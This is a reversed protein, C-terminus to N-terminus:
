ASRAASQVRPQGDATPGPGAIPRSRRRRYAVAAVVLVLVALQGWPMAWQSTSGSVPDVEIAPDADIPQIDVTTTIRGAPWIGDLLAQQELAAGPLLEPLDDLQVTGLEVGFPGTVTVTQTGSLRVNGSNVVTFTTDVSGKGLPNFTGEYSSTLDIVDLRPNLPGDVRLYVRTGVRNEVAVQQGNADTATTSVAAVIGGAHDGPTANGPVTLTVPILATQGAALDISSAGLQIWAGVDVPTKDSTLLDFGGGQPTFADSAYVSLQLPRASFNTVAVTDTITQGPTVDHVLHARSDPGEPTAPKLTWTQPGSAAGTDPAPADQAHAAGPAVLLLSLVALLGLLAATGARRPSLPRPTTHRM